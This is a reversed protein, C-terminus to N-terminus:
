GPALLGADAAIQRAWAADEANLPPQLPASYDLKWYRGSTHCHNVLKQIDLPVDPDGGRLPIRIVPLRQRLPCVYVERRGPRVARSACILYHEGLGSKKWAYECGAVDVTVPGDRLLDIEVVNVGSAVYDRRKEQYAAQHPGKKNAPSLVEIVTVLQGDDSRIEVWRHPPEDVALTASPATASWVPPLGSKWGEELVAVDPRYGKTQGGLVDVHQEVRAYMDEPLSEGLEELIQAILALHVDPWSRELFPNMGPFPNERSSM